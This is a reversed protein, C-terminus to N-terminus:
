EKFRPNETYPKMPDHLKKRHEIEDLRELIRSPIESFFEDANITRVPLNLFHQIHDIGDVYKRESLVSSFEENVPNAIGGHMEPMIRLEHLIHRAMFHQLFNVHDSTEQINGLTIHDFSGQMPWSEDIQRYCYKALNHAEGCDMCIIVYNTGM